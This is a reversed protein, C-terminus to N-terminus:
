CRNVVSHGITMWLRCNDDRRPRCGNRALDRCRLAVSMERRNCLTPAEAPLATRAVIAPAQGFGPYISVFGDDAPTKVGSSQGILPGLRLNSAVHEIPHGPEAHWDGDADDSACLWRTFVASPRNM